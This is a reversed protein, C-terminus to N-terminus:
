AVRAARTTAILADAGRGFEAAAAVAFRSGAGCAGGGAPDGMDAPPRVRSTGHWRTALLAGRMGFTVCVARAEWRERLAEASRGRTQSEHLIVLAADPIPDAGRPHPNWVILVRGSVKALVERIQPHSSIGIGRDVVCIAKADNLTRLLQAPLPAGRILRVGSNELLDDLECSNMEGAVATILVLDPIPASDGVVVLPAQMLTTM